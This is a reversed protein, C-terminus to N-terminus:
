LSVLCIFGFVHLVEVNSSHGSCNGMLFVNEIWLNLTLSFRFGVGLNAFIMMMGM